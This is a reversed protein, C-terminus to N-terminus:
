FRAELLYLGGGVVAAGAAVGFLANATRKKAEADSALRSAQSGDPAPLADIARADSRASAGFWAGAALAAVAAGAAIWAPLYRRARPPPAAPVTAAGAAAAAAPPRPALDPAGVPRAAGPAASARPIPRLVVDVLASASPAVNVKEAWPGHGELAVALAYTGPQVVVHLPTRGRDLGEVTVRAGPPDSYVLLVQVGAKALREELRQMAKRVAARDSAEPVERLYDQYSRLAGPWEELRERCQAVNFHVAGNPKARYAAEFEAQAERFRKAKYLETGRRFRAKAEDVDDARALSAAGLWALALLAALLRTM